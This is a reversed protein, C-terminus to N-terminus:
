RADEGGTQQDDLEQVLARLAQVEETSLEQSRDALFAVFPKVSGGLTRQFFEGMLGTLVEAQAMCPLYHFIGERKERTLYGKQRLRELVTHVTTRALGRPVGFQEAVQSLSIPAQATVFQLLELEQEGLSPNKM